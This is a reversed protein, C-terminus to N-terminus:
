GATFIFVKIISTEDEEIKRNSAFFVSLLFNVSAERKSAGHGQTHMSSCNTHTSVIM